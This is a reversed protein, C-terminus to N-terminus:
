AWFPIYSMYKPAANPDVPRVLNDEIFRQILRSIGAKETDTLGFRERLTENTMSGGEVQKLCANMYCTWKKSNMPINSFPVHYFM